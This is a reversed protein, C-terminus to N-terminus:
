FNCSTMWAIHYINALDQYHDYGTRVYESRFFVANNVYSQCLRISEVGPNQASASTAFAAPGILAATCAAAVVITSLKKRMTM